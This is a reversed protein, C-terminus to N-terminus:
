PRVAGPPQPKRLADRQVDLEQEQAADLLEEAEARTMRPDPGPGSGPQPTPERVGQDPPGDGGGADGGGGGGGGSPPPSERELLRRALELNWKADVDDPETLLARKYAEIARRLEEERDPLQADIYAPELHTGGLNYAPGGGLEADEETAAAELYPRAEEYRQQLLLVTGLNYDLRPNGSESELLARYEAEAAAFDGAGALQAAREWGTVGVGVGALLLLGIATRM